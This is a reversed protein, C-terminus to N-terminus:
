PEWTGTSFDGLNVMKLYLGETSTTTYTLSLVPNSRRLDRGLQITPDVGTSYISPFRSGAGDDALSDATLGPTIAPLALTAALTAAGLGLALAPNRGGLSARVPSPRAEGSRASGIRSGCWILLLFAAGTGLYVWVNPEARRVLPAISLVALPGIGSLVPVRLGTALADSIVAILGVSMVILQTIPPDAVAPIEQVAISVQAAALDGSLDGVTDLTPLLFWLTSSAYLMVVLAAWLIAGVLVVATEPAGRGRVVAMAGLVVVVMAMTAIWWGVGQLLPSLGLLAVGLTLM